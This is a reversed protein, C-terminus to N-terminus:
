AVFQGLATAKVCDFFSDNMRELLAAVDRESLQHALVIYASVMLDGSKDVSHTNTWSRANAENLASLLAKEQGWGPKKLSWWAAITILGLNRRITVNVNSRSPHKASVLDADTESNTTTYGARGLIEALWERTVEAAPRGGDAVVPAGCSPCFAGGVPVASRCKPCDM